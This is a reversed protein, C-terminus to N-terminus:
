TEAATFACRLYYWDDPGLVIYPDRIWGAKIFLARDHSQLGARITAADMVRGPKRDTKEVRFQPNPERPPADQALSFSASVCLVPLLVSLRCVSRINM